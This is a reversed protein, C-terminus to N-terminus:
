DFQKQFVELLAEGNLGIINLITETMSDWYEAPDGKPYDQYHFVGGLKCDLYKGTIKNKIGYKTTMNLCQTLLETKDIM